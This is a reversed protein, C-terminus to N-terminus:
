PAPGTPPSCAATEPGLGASGPADPLGAVSVLWQTSNAWCNPTSSGGSISRGGTRPRSLAPPGPPCIGGTTGMRQGSFFTGGERPSGAECRISCGGWPLREAASPRGGACRGAEGCALGEPGGFGEPAALGDPGALGERLSSRFCFARRGLCRSCDAWGGRHCSGTWSESRGVRGISFGGSAAPSFSESGRAAPSSPTSNAPCGL